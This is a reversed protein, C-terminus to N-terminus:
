TIMEIEVIIPLKNLFQMWIMSVNEPAPTTNNTPTSPPNSQQDEISTVSQDSPATSQQESDKNEEM